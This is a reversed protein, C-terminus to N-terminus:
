KDPIMVPSIMFKGDDSHEYAEEYTEFIPAFGLCGTVDHNFEEGDIIQTISKQCKMVMYVTKM